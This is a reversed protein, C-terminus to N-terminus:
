HGLRHYWYTLVAGSPSLAFDADLLFSAFSARNSFSFEATHLLSDIMNKFFVVFFCTIKPCTLMKVSQERQSNCRLNVQFVRVASNVKLASVIVQLQALM